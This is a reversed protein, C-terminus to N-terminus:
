NTKSNAWINEGKLKKITYLICGYFETDVLVM